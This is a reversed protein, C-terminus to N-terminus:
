APKCASKVSAPRASAVGSLPLMRLRDPFLTFQAANPVRKKCRKVRVALKLADLQAGAIKLESKQRAVECRLARIEKELNGIRNLRSLVVSQLSVPSAGRAFVGFARVSGRNSTFYM